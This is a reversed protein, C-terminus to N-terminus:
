PHVPHLGISPIHQQAVNLCCRILDVSLEALAEPKEPPYPSDFTMSCLQVHTEESRKQGVVIDWETLLEYNGPELDFEMTGLECFVFFDGVVIDYLVDEIIADHVFMIDVQSGAKKLMRRLPNEFQAMQSEFDDTFTFMMKTLRSLDVMHQYGRKKKGDLTQLTTLNAPFPEPPSFAGARGMSVATGFPYSSPIFLSMLITLSVRPKKCYLELLTELESWVPVTLPLNTGEGARVVANKSRDKLCLGIESPTQLTATVAGDQEERIGPVDLSFIEATGESAFLRV